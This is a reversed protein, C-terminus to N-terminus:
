LMNAWLLNCLIADPCTKVKELCLSDVVDRSLRLIVSCQFLSMKINLHFTRHKHRNGRARYSPMLSSLSTGHEQHM